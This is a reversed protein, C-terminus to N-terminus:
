TTVTSVTPIYNVTTVTTFTSIYNVTTVSHVTYFKGLFLLAGGANGKDPCRRPGKPRSPPAYYDKRRRM